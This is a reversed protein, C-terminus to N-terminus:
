TSQRAHDILEQEYEILKKAVKLAQYLRGNAIDQSMEELMAETSPAAERVQASMNEYPQQYQDAHAPDMYMCQVALYIRKCPTDARAETYIDKERLISADNLVTIQARSPGNALVAGNIFIKENPKLEINLPM